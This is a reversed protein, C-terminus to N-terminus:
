DPRDSDEGGRTAEIFLEELTTKRPVLYNVAIHNDQLYRNLAASSGRVIEATVHDKERRVHNVSSLHKMVDAAKTTDEVFVDVLEHNQTLLQELPDQRIIRGNNIIAIKDCVQEVEHLLHSTIFFTLCFDRRLAQILSRIEAMGQPDLGNMPEDLFIVSPESVLARALGLRQKMGLSYAAVKDNARDALGTIELVEDIKVKKVGPHINRVLALNQYASLYPYFTPVEVVAGVGQIAKSFDDTISYGNIFVSGESPRVLGLIIRILTTKGAGNPGLFGLADGQEVTLSVHRLVTRKKFRKSINTVQIIERPM